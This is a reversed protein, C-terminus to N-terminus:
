KKFTDGHNQKLLKEALPQSLVGDRYAQKISNPDPYYDRGTESKYMNLGKEVTVDANESLQKIVADKADPNAEIPIGSAGKVGKVIPIDMRMATAGNAIAPIENVFLQDNLNKFAVTDNYSSQAPGGNTALQNVLNGKFGLATPSDVPPAVGMGSMTNHSLTSMQTLKQRVGPTNAAITDMGKKVALAQTNKEKESATVVEQAAKGGLGSQGIPTIAAGGQQPSVGGGPAGGRTWQATKAAEAAEEAKATDMQTEATNKGLTSQLEMMKLPDIGGGSLNMAAMAQPSLGTPMAANPAANPPPNGSIQIGAPSPPMPVPQRPASPQTTGNLLGQSATLGPYQSGGVAPPQLQSANISPIQQPQVGGMSALAPAQQAMANAPAAQTGPTADWGMARNYAIKSVTVSPDEGKIAGLKMLANAQDLPKGTVPDPTGNVYDQGVQQLASQQRNQAIGALGAPLPGSNDKSWAALIGSGVPAGPSDPFANPDSSIQNAMDQSASSQSMAHLVNYIDGLEGAM